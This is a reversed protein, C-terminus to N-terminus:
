RSGVVLVEFTGELIPARPRPQASTPEPRAGLEAGVLYVRHERPDLTMTRASKRTPVNAAVVYHDPDIERIVTLTGDAGNSSFVLAREPDFAAGDPGKGIPVVAVHRGDISDTVVMVANGCVSFLRHHPADLALGTPEVCGPLAWTDTRRAAGADIVGLQATDVINYFVRGAGDSVAFEPVGGADITAVVRGQAPDLVSIDRSRANFTYVRRGHPDYLIADPGKGVPIVGLTRLSELDFVTVTDARGNSTFGQRLEPALAIGHVGPTDPITGVLTGSSTSVVQVRTARSIFLRNAQNDIALYDWGDQGGLVFRREVAYGAGPAGAAGPTGGAGPVEGRAAAACGAALAVLLATRLSPWASM